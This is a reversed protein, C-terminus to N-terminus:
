NARRGRRKKWVGNKTKSKDSTHIKADWPKGESDIKEQDLGKGRFSPKFDSARPKARSFFEEIQSINDAEITVKVPM